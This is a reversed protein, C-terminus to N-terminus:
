APLYSEVVFILLVLRCSFDAFLWSSVRSFGPPACRGNLLPWPLSASCSVLLRAKSFRTFSKSALILFNAPPSKRFIIRCVCAPLCFSNFMHMKRFLYGSVSSSNLIAPRGPSNLGSCDPLLSRTSTGGVQSRSSESLPLTGVVQAASNRAFSSFPFYVSGYMASKRFRRLMKSMPKCGLKRRVCTSCRRGLRPCIWPLPCVGMLKDCVHVISSFSNLPSSLNFSILSCDSAPRRSMM